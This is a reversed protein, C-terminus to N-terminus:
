IEYGSLLFCASMAAPTRARALVLAGGAAYSRSTHNACDAILRPDELEERLGNLVAREVDRLYVQRSM